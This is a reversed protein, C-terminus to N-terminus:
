RSTLPMVATSIPVMLFRLNPKTPFTDPQLWTRGNSPSLYVKIYIIYMHNCYRVRGNYKQQTHGKKRHYRRSKKQMHFLLTSDIPLILTLTNQGKLFFNCSSLPHERQAWQKTYLDSKLYFCIKSKTFVYIVITFFLYKIALKISCTWNLETQDPLIM